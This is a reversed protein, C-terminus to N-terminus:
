FEKGGRDVRLTSWWDKMKVRMEVEIISITM